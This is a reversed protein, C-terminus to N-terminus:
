MSRIKACFGDCMASSRCYSPIDFFNPNAMTSFSTTDYYFLQNGSNNVLIPIHRDVTQYYYNAEGGMVLWKDSPVGNINVVGQYTGKAAWDRELPGCGQDYSCCRCCSASGPAMVFLMDDVAVQSCMEVGFMLGSTKCLYDVHPDLYDVRSATLTADYAYMGPTSAYGLSDNFSASWVPPWEASPADAASCGSVAVLAVLALAIMLQPLRVM